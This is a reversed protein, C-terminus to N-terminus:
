APRWTATCGPAEGLHVAKLAVREGLRALRNAVSQGIFEAVREATPNTRDFPPTENLNANGFPAIVDDVVRELEHFDVLLGDADLEGGAVVVSLRWDHGHLPERAGAITIAHAASFIRQITLEYV